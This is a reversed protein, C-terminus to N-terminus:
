VTLSGLDLSSRTGPSERRREWKSCHALIGQRIVWAVFVFLWLHRVCSDPPCDAPLALHIEDLLECQVFALRNCGFRGPQLPELISDSSPLSLLMWERLLSPTGLFKALLWAVTWTNVTPFGRLYCYHCLGPAPRWCKEYPM